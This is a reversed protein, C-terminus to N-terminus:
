VPKWNRSVFCETEQWEKAVLVAGIVDVMVVIVEVTVVIVEVRLGEETMGSVDVIFGRVDSVDAVSAVVTTTGSAAVTTTMKVKKNNSWKRRALFVRVSKAATRSM